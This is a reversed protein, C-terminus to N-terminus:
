ADGKQREYEDLVADTWLTMAQSKLKIYQSEAGYALQTIAASHERQFDDREMESSNASLVDDSKVEHALIASGGGAMGERTLFRTVLRRLDHPSFWEINNQALLDVRESREPIKNKRKGDRKIKKDKYKQLLEDKAALRYIIRYVGSPSSHAKKNKVSPFVWTPTNSNTNKISSANSNQKRFSNVHDWARKPIPLVFARGAKMTKEDWAAILWGSDPRKSDAGINHTLLSLGADARQATLVLWWLASLTGHKVGATSLARGPLPRDLYKEALILTKVLDELSPFRTKVPNKYLEKLSNWWPREVDLGSKGTKHSACYKLVSRTHIVVKNSPSIGSQGKAEANIKVEDRVDEIQAKTVVRAEKDIVVQFEPRNMTTRLDDVMEKGIHQISSPKQKEIITNEFCMRLTWKKERNAEEKEAEIKELHRDAAFSSKPISYNKNAFYDALFPKIKEKQDNEMFAKVAQALDKVKKMATLIRNSKKSYAYAITQSNSSTRVVWSATRGLVQLRLGAINEENYIHTGTGIFEGNECKRKILTSPMILNM